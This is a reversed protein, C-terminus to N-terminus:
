EAGGIVSPAAPVVAPNEAVLRVDMEVDGVVDAFKWGWDIAQGISDVQLMVFGAILEKSEAFPGDTVTRRGGSSVLRVANSSPQLRESFLLAGANRMEEFLKGIGVQVEPAPPLGAETNADAKRVIMFRATPDNGPKPMMGLDWPEVLPRVDMEVDGVVDAFRWAWEVAEDLSSARIITFGAPLENAGSFPGHQVNRRGESFMLRVGASTPKLGEGALVVGAKMMQGMLDGMAAIFEPSPSVGAETNSDAKHMAIVRM